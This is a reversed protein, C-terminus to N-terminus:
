PRHNEARHNEVRAMRDCLDDMRINLTKLEAEVVPTRMFSGNIWLKQQESQKAMDLSIEIRLQATAAKIIKDLETNITQWDRVSIFAPAQPNAERSTKEELAAIELARKKREAEADANADLNQKIFARAAWYLATGTGSFIGVYALLDHPNM